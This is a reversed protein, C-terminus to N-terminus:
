TKEEFSGGEKYEILTCHNLNSENLKIYAKIEQLDKELQAIKMYEDIKIQTAIVQSAKYAYDSSVEGNSMAQKIDSLQESISKSNDFSDLVEDEIKPKAPLIRDLLLRLMQENGNLALELAKDFLAQKHKGLMEAFLVRRDKIGRPRGNINGSHGAVFKSM